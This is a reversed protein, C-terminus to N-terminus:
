AVSRRVPLSTAMLTGCGSIRLTVRGEGIAEVPLQFNAFLEIVRANDLYNGIRVAGFDVHHHLPKGPFRERYGQFFLLLKRRLTGRKNGYGNACASSYMWALPIQM